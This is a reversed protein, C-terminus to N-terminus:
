AISLINGLGGQGGPAGVDRKAAADRVRCSGVGLRVKVTGSSGVDATSYSRCKDMM